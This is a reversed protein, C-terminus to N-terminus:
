KVSKVAAPFIIDANESLVKAYKSIGQLDPTEAEQTSQIQLPQFILLRNKIQLYM